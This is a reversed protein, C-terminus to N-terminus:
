TWCHGSCDDELPAVEPSNFSQDLPKLTGCLYVPDKGLWERKANIDQEFGVARQFLEPEDTAMEEWEKKRKFPCYWCSSKPPVPLGSEEIIKECDKRSLNLDLLPHRNTIHPTQSEKARHWEDTSIGIGVHSNNTKTSGLERCLRDIVKIKYEITCKRNGHAGGAMKVPIAISRNNRSIVNQYLTEDRGDRWKKRRTLFTLGHAIAYPASYAKIYDLTKQSESDDGVNSFAFISFDIEGRAALVLAATSQVGGGFSFINVM